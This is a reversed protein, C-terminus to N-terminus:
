PVRLPPHGARLASGVRNPSHPFLRAYQFGRLLAPHFSPAAALGAKRRREDHTSVLLPRPIYHPTTSSIMLPLFRWDWWAYFFWSCLTLFALRLTPPRLLSWGLLVFPLFAFIFEHSNFLM